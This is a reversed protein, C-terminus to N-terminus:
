EYHSTFRYEGTVRKDFEDIILVKWSIETNPPLPNILTANFSGNHQGMPYYGSINDVYGSEDFIQVSFPDGERDKVTIFVKQTNLNVDTEGNKPYPNSLEPRKNDLGIEEELLQLKLAFKEMSVGLFIRETLDFLLKFLAPNIFKLFIREKYVIRNIVDIYSEDSYEDPTTQLVLDVLIMLIFKALPLSLSEPIIRSIISLIIYSGGLVLTGIILNTHWQSVWKDIANSIRWNKAERTTRDSSKEVTFKFNESRQQGESDTVTLTVSYEIAPYIDKAPIEIKKGSYYFVPNVPKNGIRTTYSHPRLTWNYSIIEDGDPDNAFAELSYFSDMNKFFPDLLGIKELERYDNSWFAEIHIFLPLIYELLFSKPRRPKDTKAEISVTPKQNSKITINISHTSKKGSEDTVNLRCVYSGKNEYIHRPNKERSINGDGFEWICDIDGRVNSIISSFQIETPAVGSSKDSLINVFLPLDKDKNGLEFIQYQTIVVFVSIIVIFVLGISIIKKKVEGSM